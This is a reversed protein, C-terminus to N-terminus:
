AARLLLLWAAASMLIGGGALVGWARVHSRVSFAWCVCAVFVFFALLFTWTRAEDYDLGTALMLAIGLSVFGWVFAYGGVLSAAIRSVLHSTKM